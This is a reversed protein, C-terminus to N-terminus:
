KFCNSSFEAAIGLLKVKGDPAIAEIVYKKSSHLGLLAAIFKSMKESVGVEQGIHM